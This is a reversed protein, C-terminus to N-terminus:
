KLLDLAKKTEADTRKLDYVNPKWEDPLFDVASAGIRKFVNTQKPEGYGGYKLVVKGKQAPTTAMQYETFAREDNLLIRGANGAIEELQQGSVNPGFWNHGKVASNVKSTIESLFQDPNASMKNFSSRIATKLGGKGTLEETAKVDQQLMPSYGAQKYAPIQYMPMTVVSQKHTKPDTVVIQKLENLMSNQSAKLNNGAIRESSSIQMQALDYMRRNTISFQKQNELFDRADKESKFAFDQNWSDKTFGFKDTELGYSRDSVFDERAYRKDQRAIDEERQFGLRSTDVQKMLEPSAYPAMTGASLLDQKYTDGTAKGLLGSVYENAKMQQQAKRDVGADAVLKDLGGTVGQTALLIDRVNYPQGGANPTVHQTDYYGM